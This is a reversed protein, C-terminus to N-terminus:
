RRKGKKTAKRQKRTRRRLRLYDTYLVWKGEIDKEVILNGTQAAGVYYRTIM